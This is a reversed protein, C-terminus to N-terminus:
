NFYLSWSKGLSKKTYKVLMYYARFERVHYIYRQNNNKSSIRKNHVINSNKYVTLTAPLIGLCTYNNTTSGELTKKIESTGLM